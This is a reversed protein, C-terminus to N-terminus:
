LCPNYRKPINKEKSKLQYDMNKAIGQRQYKDQMRIYRYLTPLWNIYKGKRKWGCSEWYLRFDECDISKYEKGKCYKLYATKIDELTPPNFKIRDIEHYKEEHEAIAAAIKAAINPQFEKAGRLLDDAEKQNFTEM